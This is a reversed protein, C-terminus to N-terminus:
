LPKRQSLNIIVRSAYKRSMHLQVGNILTINSNEITKIKNLSVIRNQSCKIFGYPSLIDLEKNLAGYKHYSEHETYVDIDHGHIELYYINYINLQSISAKTKCIYTQHTDRYLQLAQELGSIGYQQIFSTLNDQLTQNDSFEQIPNM